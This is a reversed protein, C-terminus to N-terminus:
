AAWNEGREAEQERWRKVSGSTQTDERIAEGNRNRIRVRWQEGYEHQSAM